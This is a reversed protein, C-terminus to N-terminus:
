GNCFYFLYKENNPLYLRLYLYRQKKNNSTDLSLIEDISIRTIEPNIKKLSESLYDTKFGDLDLVKLFDNLNM